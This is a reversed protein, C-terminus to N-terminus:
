VFSRGLGVTTDIGHLVKGQEEESGGKAEGGFFARTRGGAGLTRSLFAALQRTQWDGEARIFLLAQVLGHFLGFLVGRHLFGVILSGLGLLGRLFGVLFGSVKGIVGGALDVRFDGRNELLDLLGHLATLRVLGVALRLALRAALRRATGLTLSILRSAFAARALGLTIAGTAVDTLGAGIATAHNRAKRGVLLTADAIGHGLGVAVRGHAGGAFGGGRGLALRDLDGFVDGALGVRGKGREELLHALGALRAARLAVITAVALLGFLCPFM